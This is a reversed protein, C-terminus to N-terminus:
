LLRMVISEFPMPTTVFPLTDFMADCADRHNMVQAFLLTCRGVANFGFSM